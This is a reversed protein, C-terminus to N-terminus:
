LQQYTLIRLTGHFKGNGAEIKTVKVSSGHKSCKKKGRTIKSIPNQKICLSVQVITIKQKISGVRASIVHM